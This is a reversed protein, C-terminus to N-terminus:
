TPSATHKTGAGTSTGAPKAAISPLSITTLYLHSPVPSPFSVQVLFCSECAIQSAMQCGGERGELNACPFVPQTMNRTEQRHPRPCLRHQLNFESPRVRFTSSGESSRPVLLNCVAGTCFSSQLSGRM